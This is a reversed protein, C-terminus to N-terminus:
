EPEIIEFLRAIAARTRWDAPVTVKMLEVRQIDREIQSVRRFRLDLSCHLAVYQGICLEDAGIL